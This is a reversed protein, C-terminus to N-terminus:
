KTSVVLYDTYKWFSAPNLIRLYATVSPDNEDAVLEYSDQPHKSIVVAKKKDITITTVKSRDITTFHETSMSETTNQKKGIGIFGGTKNVVNLEKLEKFTGVIFYARNAAEHQLAIYEDKQRNEETLTSVNENLNQIVARNSAVEQTLESIQQEQTAMRAELKDVFEQLKSNEAGLSSIRANLTAIKKKNDALMSEISSLQDSIEGKVNYSSEMNGRKMEKVNSYKASILALNDEIQNLVEFLADVEGEKQDVIAQLSDAKKQALLVEEGNNCSSLALAAVAVALFLRNKTM